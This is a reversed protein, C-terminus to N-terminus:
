TPYILSLPFTQQSPGIRTMACQLASGPRSFRLTSSFHSYTLVPPSGLNSGNVTLLSNRGGLMWRVLNPGTPSAAGMTGNPDFMLAANGYLNAAFLVSM